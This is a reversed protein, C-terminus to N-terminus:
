SVGNVLGQSGREQGGATLVFDRVGGKHDAIRGDKIKVVVVRVDDDKDEGDEPRAHFPRNPSGSLLSVSNEGAGGQGIDVPKSTSSDTFGNFLLHREKCWKEADSGRQLVQATGNITASINGVESSNMGMLLTALSSRGGERGQPRSQSDSQPPPSSRPNQAPPRSSVWDHVLLSVNPNSLLNLTKRSSPNTTMIIIPGHPLDTTSNNFPHSPLYTYNMLSVHPKLDVCTALHLYKANQLCSEVSDPLSDSLEPQTNASTEWTLPPLADTM